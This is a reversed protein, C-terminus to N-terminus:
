ALFVWQVKSYMWWAQTYQKGYLWPLLLQSFPPIDPTELQFCLIQTVHLHLSSTRTHLCFFPPSWFSADLAFTQDARDV